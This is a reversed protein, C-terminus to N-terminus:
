AMLKEIQDASIVVDGPAKAPADQAPAKGPAPNEPAPVDAPTMNLKEDAM